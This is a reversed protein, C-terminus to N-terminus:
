PSDHRQGRTVQRKSHVDAGCRGAPGGGDAAQAVQGIGPRWVAPRELIRDARWARAPVLSSALHAVTGKWCHCQDCLSTAPARGSERRAELNNVRPARRLMEYDSWYGQNDALIVLQPDLIPLLAGTQLEWEEKTIPVFGWNGLFAANVVERVLEM